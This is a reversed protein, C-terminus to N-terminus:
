GWPDKSELVTNIVDSCEVTWGLGMLAGFNYFQTLVSANYAAQTYESALDFFTDNMFQDVVTTNGALTTVGYIELLDEDDYCRPLFIQAPIATEAATSNLYDECGATLLFSHDAQLTQNATNLITQAYAKYEDTANFGLDNALQTLDQAEVSPSSITSENLWYEFASSALDLLLNQLTINQRWDEGIRNDNIPVSFRGVSARNSSPKSAGQQNSNVGYTTRILGLCIIWTTLM